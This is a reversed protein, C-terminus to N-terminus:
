SKKLLFTGDKQDIWAIHDGEIWGVEALLELPFTIIAENTVPDEEVFTIYDSM